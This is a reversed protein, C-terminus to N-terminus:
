LKKGPKQVVRKVIEEGTKEWGTEETWASIRKRRAKKFVSKSLCLKCVAYKMQKFHLWKWHVWLPSCHTVIVSGSNMVGLSGVSAPLQSGKAEEKREKRVVKPLWWDAEQQLNGPDWKKEGEVNEKHIEDM